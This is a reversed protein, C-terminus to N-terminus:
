EIGYRAMLDDPMDADFLPQGDFGIGYYFPALDDPLSAAQMRKAEGFSFSSGLYERQLGYVSIM